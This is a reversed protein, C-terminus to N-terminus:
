ATVASSARDFMEEALDYRKTMQHTPAVVKLQRCLPGACCPPTLRPGPMACFTPHSSAVIGKAASHVSQGQVESAPAGCAGLHCAPCSGAQATGWMVGGQCRGLGVCGQYRTANKGLHLSAVM